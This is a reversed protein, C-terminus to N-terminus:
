PSSKRSGKKKAGALAQQEQDRALRLARLKATKADSAEKERALEARFNGENRESSTFSQNRRTADRSGSTL